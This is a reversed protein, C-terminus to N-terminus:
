ECLLYLVSNSRPPECAHINEIPLHLLRRGSFWFYYYCFGFVGHSLALDSQREQIGPDALDYAGLTTPLRPQAHGDFQPTARWVDTWETYGEGWWADNEPIRHFQPLYFAILRPPM